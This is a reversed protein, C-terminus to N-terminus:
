IKYVQVWAEKKITELPNIWLRPAVQLKIEVTVRNKANKM